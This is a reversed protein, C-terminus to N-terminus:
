KCFTIFTVAASRTLKVKLWKVNDQDIEVVQYSNEGLINVSTTRKSISGSNTEYEVVIDVPDDVDLLGLEKVYQGGPKTFDMIIVGGDVNDDPINMQDNVEQIILALGQPECNEGPKGRKGGDGIGPGGGICDQNPAGLDPDGAEITGPNATDFLRPLNGYGGTSGLVLGYDSWHNKVYEGRYLKKGNDDKSFDVTTLTCGGDTPPVPTPPAKTPVAFTPPARTPPSPPILVADIVYVIGNSALISDEINAVNVKIETATVTLEVTAGNFTIYIEGDKLPAILQDVVHYLLVSEIVDAPTNPDLGLNVFAQNTPAFLTLPGNGDLAPLLGAGDVLSYLTSLNAEDALIKAITRLM